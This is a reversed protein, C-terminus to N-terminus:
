DNLDTELSAKFIRHYLWNEGHNRAFLQSIIESLYGNSIKTGDNNLRTM